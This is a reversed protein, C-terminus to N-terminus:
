VRRSRPMRVGNFPIGTRDELEKIRFNRGDLTKVAADRGSGFGRFIISISSVGLATMKNALDNAATQSAHPTSKRAGKFGVVGPSSWAVVAKTKDCFATLITNNSSSNVHVQVHPYVVKKRSKVRKVKNM